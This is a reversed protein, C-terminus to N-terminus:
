AFHYVFFCVVRRVRGVASYFAAAVVVSLLTGGTEPVRSFRLCKIM